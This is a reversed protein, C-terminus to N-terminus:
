HAPSTSKRVREQPKRFPTEPEPLWGTVRPHHHASNSNDQTQLPLEQLMSRVQDPKQLYQTPKALSCVGPNPKRGKQKPWLYRRINVSVVILWISYCVDESLPFSKLSCCHSFLTCHLPKAVFLSVTKDATSGPTVDEYMMGCDLRFAELREVLAVLDLEIDDLTGLAKLSLVHDLYLGNGAPPEPTGPVEKTGTLV